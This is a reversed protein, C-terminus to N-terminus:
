RHTDEEHLEEGPFMLTFTSGKGPASEVHVEGGHADVIHKVIALGLGAGGTGRSKGEKARFFAEFLHEQDEPAIGIGHDRVWVAAFRDRRATGVEITREQDSYKLANSLLNLVAEVLADPDATLPLEGPALHTELTCREMKLQYAMMGLVQRVITNLECRRRHYEKVGREVKAFDLVNNILRTLRESEGEIIELYERAEKRPLNEKTRLIEAFMKISTLPTKLDHSVSSVFYSKIRNLEELRQSEAHELLLKEQLRIRDVALGAQLSVLTLLDVDEATFRLGSKKEGLVLFGLLAGDDSQMSFVLAMGWRHFVEEDAVEIAVGPEVVREIAVPLKLSTKLKDTEFRVGRTELLHFNAHALLRLRNGPQQIIFFGARATELLAGIRGVVLQALRELDTSRNIDDVFQRQAERFQYRIRFFKSDIFRQVRARAPEFLLALIVATVTSIMISTHVTWLSVISAASGVVGLYVLLMLGLVLGYVASRNILLDIDMIRYKLISITFSAPILLLLFKFVLEPIWPSLGLAKPLVWFLVFPAPGISIGWLIWRLKKRDGETAAAASSRLFNVVGFLMLLFVFGNQIMETRETLLFLSLSRQRAADLYQFASVGALGAAAAYLVGVVPRYRPWRVSPFLFTFHVFFVPIVSYSLFFVASCTSGILPSGVAYVTKTGALAAALTTSALHFIVAAPDTPRLLYVALGLLFIVTVLLVDCITFFADYYEVLAVRLPAADLAVPQVTVTDGITQAGLFFELQDPTSLTVGSVILPTTFQEPLTSKETLHLIAAALFLVVAADLGLIFTKRLPHSTRENM